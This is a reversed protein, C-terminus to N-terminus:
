GRHHDASDSFHPTTPAQDLHKMQSYRASQTPPIVPPNALPESFLQDLQQRFNAVLVQSHDTYGMVKLVGFDLRSIAEKLKEDNLHHITKLQLVHDTKLSGLDSSHMTRAKVESGKPANMSLSLSYIDLWLQYLMLISVLWETLYGTPNEDQKM